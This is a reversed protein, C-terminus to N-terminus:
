SITECVDLRYIACLSYFRFITPITGKHEIDALRSLAIAFEDNGRLTAIQQSAREVDRYTLRLKERVRKLKEGPREMSHDRKPWEFQLPHSVDCALSFLDTKNRYRFLVRIVLTITPM